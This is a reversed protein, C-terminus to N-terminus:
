LHLRQVDLVSIVMIAVNVLFCLSLISNKYKFILNLQSHPKKTDELCLTTHEPICFSVHASSDMDLTLTKGCM